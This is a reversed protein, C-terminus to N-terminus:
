DNYLKSANAFHREFITACNGKLAWGIDHQHPKSENGEDSAKSVMLRERWASSASRLSAMVLPFAM